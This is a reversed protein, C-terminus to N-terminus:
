TTHTDQQTERQRQAAEEQARRLEQAREEAARRRAKDDAIHALTQARTLEAENKKLWAEREHRAAKEAVTAQCKELLRTAIRLMDDDAQPPLVRHRTFDYVGERWGCAKLYAEGGKVGLVLSKIKENTCKVRRYKEEGPHEEVNKLLRLLTEVCAAQKPAPNHATQLISGHLAAVLASHAEEV